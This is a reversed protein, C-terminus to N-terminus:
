RTIRRRRRPKPPPPLASVARDLCACIAICCTSSCVHMSQSQLPLMGARIIAPKIHDKLKPIVFDHMEETHVQLHHDMGDHALPGGRRVVHQMSACTARTDGDKCPFKLIVVDARKSYRKVMFHYACGLKASTSNQLAGKRAKTGPKVPQPSLDPDVQQRQQQQKHGPKSYSCEARNNLLVGDSAAKFVRSANLACNGREEEGAEFDGLRNFPIAAVLAHQGNDKILRWGLEAANFPGASPCQVPLKNAKAYGPVRGKAPQQASLERMNAM